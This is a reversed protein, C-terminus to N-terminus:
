NKNKKNKTKIIFIYFYPIAGNQMKTALGNQHNWIFFALVFIYPSHLPDLYCNKAWWYITRGMFIHAQSQVLKAPDVKKVICVLFLIELENLSKSFPYNVEFEAKCIPCQYVFHRDFSCGDKNYLYKLLTVILLMKKKDSFISWFCFGLWPSGLFLISFLWLRLLSFAVFFWCLFCVTNFSLCCSFWCFFAFLMFSFQSFSFDTSEVEIRLLMLLFSPLSPPQPGLRGSM